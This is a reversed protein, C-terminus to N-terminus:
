TGLEQALRALAERYGEPGKGSVSIVCLEEIVSHRRWEERNKVDSLHVEAAPLAAIELADRLAWSTHTWAGPNLVVADAMGELRHLHEIYEAEANTHFFRAQLSLEAAYDAIVRELEPLSLPGYHAAPRRHLQDLNVGHMIEVRHLAATSM